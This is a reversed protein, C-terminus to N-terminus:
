PCRYKSKEKGPWGRWKKFTSNISKGCSRSNGQAWACVDGATRQHMGAPISLIGISLICSNIPFSSSFGQGDSLDGLMKHAQISRALASSMSKNTGLNWSSPCMLFRHAPLNFLHKLLGAWYISTCVSQTVHILQGLYHSIPWLNGLRARSYELSFAVLVQGGLAASKDLCDAAQERGVKAEAGLKITKITKLM